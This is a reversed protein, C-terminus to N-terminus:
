VSTGRQRDGGFACSLHQKWKPGSRERPRTCQRVQLTGDDNVFDAADAGGVIIWSASGDELDTSVPIGVITSNEAISVTAPVTLVPADNQPDVIITLTSNTQLTGDSVAYTLTETYAADTDPTYILNGSEFDISLTGRAPSSFSDEVVQLSDGDPDSDNSLLSAFQSTLNLPIDETIRIEDDQTVPADNEATVTFTVSDTVFDDGFQLTYELQVTGNADAPPNVTLIDLTSNYIFVGPDFDNTALTLGNFPDGDPDIGTSELLAGFNTIVLPTDEPLTFIPPSSITPQDNVPTVNITLTYTTGDTANNSDAVEFEISGPSNINLTPKFVLNDLNTRSLEEPPSVETGNLTVTGGAISSINITGKSVDSQDEVDTFGFDVQSLSKPTDEDTTVTNSQATPVDNVPTVNITLTYTTGDSAGDSDVVTFKIAGSDNSNTTPNFVLNDLGSRSLTLPASVDAGGLTLTGGTISDIHVRGDEVASQDEVDTFGFDAQSLPKPTDEGTTVTNDQATPVDNVPTVNITLTYTTSDTANESDEVEFEISGPSNSNLTPTFSLNDLDTRSLSVPTIVDLGYLTLTGGAVSEINITGQSVDDNDEVDDFGFDAQTLPKPTDEDTSITNSEATPVDNISTVNITLTYVTGDTADDSDTVTFEIAGPAFSNLTPTFSLNDLDTRSMSVPTIVDLGYLTLTGGAVSEINVMGQSVDDNDEVDDFGFDAQTLPKPTDEDTTSRTTRLRRFM